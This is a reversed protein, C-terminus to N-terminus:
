VASKPAIGNTDNESFHYLFGRVLGEWIPLGINIVDSYHSRINTLM